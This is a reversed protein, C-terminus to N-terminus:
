GAPPESLAPDALGLAALDPMGAMPHIYAGRVNSGHMRLAESYMLPITAATQQIVSDLEGWLRYQQDVDSEAFAADIMNNVQESDLESVNYTRDRGDFLPPIVSSGNPWDPTWVMWSLHFEGRRQGLLQGLYEQVDIPELSVQVGIRQYSEVVVNGMRRLEANDPFAFSLETPCAQGDAEVQALLEAARDPQGDPQGVTDYHDFEQHARLNPPIISTALEGRLSGGFVSRVKRKNMAFVLAQRCREDPILSTNVALHRVGGRPGAAVRESLQPDTMVQQLFTPALDADLMIRSQDAGEDNVLANTAVAADGLRQFVLQDPYAGRHPDTARDWHPNRELVLEEGPDHSAVRYPGNALPRLNYDGRDDDSGPRVPGFVPLSVTYNFDSRPQALHYRIVRQDVCEISELGAGDNNNDVWPGRYVRDGDAGAASDSGNDRLYTLPYVAGTQRDSLESFRREVGYKLEQCTIPEGDEWRVGDRLTFEWVTNDEAPRGTDTALDPVLESGAAGPAPRYGTLTRTVLNSINAEVGTQVLQPDLYTPLSLVDVTLAGGRQPRPGAGDREGGDCAATGLLAAAAVVAVARVAPRGRRRPLRPYVLRPNM